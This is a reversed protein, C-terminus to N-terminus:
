GGSGALGVLLALGLALVGADALLVLGGSARMLLRM